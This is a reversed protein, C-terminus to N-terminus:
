PLITAKAKLNFGAYGKLNSGIQEFATSVLDVPAPVGSVPVGFGQVEEKDSELRSNLSVCLSQAKSYSGANSDSCMETFGQVGIKLGM